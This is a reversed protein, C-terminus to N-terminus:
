EKAPKRRGKPTKRLRELAEEMVPDGNRFRDLVTEIEVDPAVGVEDIPNGKPDMDLWRPVNVTIGSGVEVRKPNASSGATRDGITTVQPCQAMMLVFSEASSMTKRGQLVMVPGRYRWPGRPPCKRELRRGLDDHKPGSRYRNTGYVREKDLFRGAIDIALNEGGGGNFRLDLILGWTDSLAELAADFMGPLKENTLRWVNVYGIGDATRGWTLDRGEQALHV